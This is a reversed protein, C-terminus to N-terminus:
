RLIDLGSLNSYSFRDVHELLAGPSMALQDTDFCQRTKRDKCRKQVMLVSMAGGVVGVALLGIYKYVIKLVARDLWFIVDM